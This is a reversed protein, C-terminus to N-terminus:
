MAKAVAAAPPAGGLAPGLAPAERARDAVAWALRRFHASYPFEGLVQVDPVGPTVLGLPLVPADTYAAGETVPVEFPWEAIRADLEDVGEVLEPQVSREHWGLLACVPRVTPWRSLPSDM